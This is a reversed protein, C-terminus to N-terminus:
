LGLRDMTQEQAANHGGVTGGVAERGYSGVAASGANSNSNLQNQMAIGTMAEGMPGAGGVAVGAGAGGALMGGQSPSGVYGTKNDYVFPQGTVSLPKTPLYAPYLSELSTPYYGTTTGYKTMAAQIEQIKRQDAAAIDAAGEYLVGTQPDYGFATGGTPIPLGQIYDPVLVSLAPPNVGKEARYTDIAKQLNIKGTTDAARQVQGKMAKMQEAQLEGTIATTTLVEAMCGSLSCAVLWLGINMGRM